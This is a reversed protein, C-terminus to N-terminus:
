RGCKGHTSTSWYVKGYCGYLVLNGDNQMVLRCAESRYTKSNWVAQKGYKYLVLNGDSQFRLGGEIAIGHTRSDWNVYKRDCYIVLNGDYQMVLRYRGNASTLTQGEGLAAGNNGRICRDGECYGSKDTCEGQVAIATAFIVLLSVFMRCLM